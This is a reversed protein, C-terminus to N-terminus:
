NSEAIRMRVALSGRRRYPGRTSLEGGGEPICMYWAIDFMKDLPTPPLAEIQDRFEDEYEWIGDGATIAKQTLDVLADVAFEIRGGKDLFHHYKRIDFNSGDRQIYNRIRHVTPAQGSLLIDSMVSWVYHWGEHFSPYLGAPNRRLIDTPIYQIYYIGSVCCESLPLPRGCDLPSDCDRTDDSAIEATNRLAKRIRPSMWGDVLLSRTSPSMLAKITHLNPLVDIGRAPLPPRGMALDLDHLLYDLATEENKDTLSPDSGANEILYSVTHHNLSVAAAHLPRCGNEDPLNVDGGLDILTQLICSDETDPLKAALFLARSEHISAGRRVLETIEQICTQKMGSHVAQSIHTAFEDVIRDRVATDVNPLEQAIKDQAAGPLLMEFEAIREEVGVVKMHLELDLGTPKHPRTKKHIKVQQLEEKSRWRRIADESDEDDGFYVVPTLFWAGVQDSRRGAQEFGLRAFHRQVTDDHRDIADLEEDTASRSDPWTRRSNEKWQCKHKGLSCPMVVALTWHGGLLVLVEHIIRLGLDIGQHSPIVEITDLHLFGGGSIAAEDLHPHKVRSANGDSECFIYALQQLEGSVGDALELFDASPRRLLSGKVHSVVQDDCQVTVDLNYGDCEGGQRYDLEIRYTRPSQHPEGEEVHTPDGTRPWVVESRLIVM